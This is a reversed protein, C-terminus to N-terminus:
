LSLPREREHGRRPGFVLVAYGRRRGAAREALDPRPGVAGEGLGDHDLGVAVPVPVCDAVPVFNTVPVPGRDFGVPIDAWKELHVNTCGMRRFQKLGWEEAKDLEPSGTLRPGINQTLDALYAMVHSHNKGENVLRDITAPDGMSPMQAQVAVPILIAAFAVASILQTRIKM